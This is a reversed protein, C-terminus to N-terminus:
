DAELRNIAALTEADPAWSDLHGLDADFMDGLWNDLRENLSALWRAFM